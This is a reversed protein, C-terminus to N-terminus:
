LTADPRNRYTEDPRADMYMESAIRWAGDAQRHLVRLSHNDRLEITGGGALGQGRVQLHTSVVVVDDGLCQLSSRPPAVLEGDNFNQDAFLGRLYDVIARNGRKVTGFANVWDAGDTYIGDLQDADRATFGGLLSALAALLRPQESEPVADFGALPLDTATM